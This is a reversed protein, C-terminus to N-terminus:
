LRWALPQRFVSMGSTALKAACTESAAGGTKRCFGPVCSKKKRFVEHDPRSDKVLGPQIEVFARYGAKRREFFGDDGPQRELRGAQYPVHGQVTM